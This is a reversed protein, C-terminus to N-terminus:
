DKKQRSNAAKRRDFGAGRPRRALDRMTFPTVGGAIEDLMAALSDAQGAGCEMLVLGDDVLRLPLQKIIQRYADLGDAGAFLAGEPEYEAVDRALGQRDGVPIYPPNAIILDFEGTLRELWNGAAFQARGALGLTTANERAIGLAALSIDVGIGTSSPFETLLACLLCGSGTGLDAIRLKEDRSRRALAAEILVGSDDRPILVDPTVKFELSWFERVGTIYAVPESQAR